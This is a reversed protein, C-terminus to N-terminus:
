FNIWKNRKWNSHEIPLKIYMIPSLLFFLIFVPIFFIFLYKKSASKFINLTMGIVFLFIGRFFLRRMWYFHGAVWFYKAILKRSKDAYIAKRKEKLYKRYNVLIKKDLVIFKYYDKKM